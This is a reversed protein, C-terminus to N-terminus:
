QGKSSCALLINPTSYTPSCVCSFPFFTLAQPRVMLISILFFNHLARLSSIIGACHLHWFFFDVLTFQFIGAFWISHSFIAGGRREGGGGMVKRITQGKDPDTRIM